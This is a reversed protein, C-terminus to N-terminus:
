LARLKGGMGECGGSSLHMTVPSTRSRRHLVTCGNVPSHELGPPRRAASLVTGARPYFRRTPLVISSLDVMPLVVTRSVVESSHNAYQQLPGQNSEPVQWKFMIWKFVPAFQVGSVSRRLTNTFVRKKNLFNWSRIKPYKLHVKEDNGWNMNRSCLNFSLAKFYTVVVDKSMRRFKSNMNMDNRM